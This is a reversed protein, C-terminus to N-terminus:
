KWDLGEHDMFSWYRAIGEWIEGGRGFYMHVERRPMYDMKLITLCDNFLDTDLCRFDSLDFPFREGNYLSLLFRAVVRGQGSPRHATDLLRQLAALCLPSTDDADKTLTFM